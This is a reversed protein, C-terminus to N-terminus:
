PAKFWRKRSPRVRWRRRSWCAPLSRGAGQPRLSSVMWDVSSGGQLPSTAGAARCHVVSVSPSSKARRASAMIARTPTAPRRAIWRTRTRSASTIRMRSERSSPSSATVLSSSLAPPSRRMRSEMSTAIPAALGAGRKARSRASISVAEVATATRTRASCSVKACARAWKLGPRSVSLAAQGFSVTSATWSRSAQFTGMQVSLPAAIVARSRSARKAPRPITTQAWRLLLPPQALSLTPFIPM